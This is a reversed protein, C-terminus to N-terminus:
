KWQMTEWLWGSPVVNVNSAAANLKAGNVNTNTFRLNSELRNLNTLYFRLQCATNPYAFYPVYQRVPKLVM